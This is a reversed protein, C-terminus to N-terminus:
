SNPAFPQYASIESRLFSAIDPVSRDAPLIQAFSSGPGAPRTGASKGYPKRPWNSLLTLSRFSGASLLDMRHLTDTTQAPGPSQMKLPRIGHAGIRLEEQQAQQQQKAMLLTCCGCSLPHLRNRRRCCCLFEAMRRGQCWCVDFRQDIIKVTRLISTRDFHGPTENSAM